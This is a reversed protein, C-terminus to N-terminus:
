ADAEATPVSEGNYTICLGPTSSRLTSLWGVLREGILQTPATSRAAKGVIRNGSGSAAAPSRERSVLAGDRFVLELQEGSRSVTVRLETCMRNILSMGIGQLQVPGPTRLGFPFEFQEYIFSLYPTGDIKKDIPHGRGNDAVVFSDDCAQVDICSAHGAQVEAIAYLVLARVLLAAEASVPALPMSSTTVLTM